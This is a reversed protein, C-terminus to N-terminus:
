ITTPCAVFQGIAFSRTTSSPSQCLHEAAMPTRYMKVLREVTDAVEGLFKRVEIELEAIVVPDREVRRIEIQMEPPLRPDFSVFDCWQRGTCAMQWHMQMMYKKDIPKGLLTAIHTSTQPAKVEILGVDGVLGDPSASAMAINPHSVMGVPYVDVSTIFGYMSKAEPEKETGWRMAENVFCESPEGTLRECVLQAMYNERSASAGSKTKAVIDVIRSATVRGARAKKWEMSGQLLGQELAADDSGAQVVQM